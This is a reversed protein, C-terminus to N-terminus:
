TNGGPSAATQAAPPHQTSPVISHWLLFSSSDSASLSSSSAWLSSRPEMMLPKWAERPRIAVAQFAFTLLAWLVRIILYEGGGQLIFSLVDGTVFLKTMWEKRILVHGEGDVVSIIRGLEMYITAAFLAPAVLLLIAQIIYPGLTWDPSENGSKARGAYGIVEVVRSQILMERFGTCDHHLLGNVDSFTVCSM